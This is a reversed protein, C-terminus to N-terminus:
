WVVEPFHCGFHSRLDYTVAQYTTEVLGIPPRMHGLQHDAVAKIAALHEATHEAFNAGCFDPEGPLCKLMIVYGMAELADRTAIATHMWDKDAM